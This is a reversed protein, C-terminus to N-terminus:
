CRADRRRRRDRRGRRPEPDRDVRGQHRALLPVRGGLDDDDRQHLLLARHRAAGAHLDAAHRALLDQLVAGEAVGVGGRVRRRAGEARDGRDPPRDHLLPRDTCLVLLTMTHYLGNLPNGPANFFFIYGLGLVLGPVAMPLMALLRVSRGCRRRAGRTKELMYAGVFVLATGFLATGAALKLSNVFASASRPTSWGWRTTTAPEADPQVALLKAFSAFVAMGIMALMLARRAVCYAIM